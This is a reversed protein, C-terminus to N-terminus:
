KKHDFLIGNYPYVVNQRDMWWKISMQTIEVKQCSNIISSHVNTNLNEHPCINENRKHMYRPTSSSPWITITPKAIQPVALALSNELTATGNQVWVLLTHPEFKEVDEGLITINKIIAM